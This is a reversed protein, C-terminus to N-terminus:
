SSELRASPPRWRAPRRTPSCGSDHRELSISPATSPFRLWTLPSNSSIPNRCMAKMLRFGPVAEVDQQTAGRMSIVVTSLHNLQANRRGMSVVANILCLLAM